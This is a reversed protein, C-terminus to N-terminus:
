DDPWEQADMLDASEALLADAQGRYAAAIEAEIQRRRKSTLYLEIAARVFASRGKTRTEVDADVQRLLDSDISIQVPKAPMNATYLM